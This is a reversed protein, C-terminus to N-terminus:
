PRIWGFARKLFAQGDTTVPAGHAIVVARAPWSLVQRIAARAADRDTFAVRFKKPVAPELGVLGDMRAVLARWGKFWGVPLQQLLDTFLVTRSPKHYFVVETTIRNGAMVVQDLVEAWSPDPTDGLTGSITLDPRKDALGPAAWVEAAPYAAAWDGISVHHLHNPAILFRVPGLADIEEKLEPTIAVPSWVWLSGDTLRIIAMRTPYRFGMAAVVEPGNALWIGEGFEELM